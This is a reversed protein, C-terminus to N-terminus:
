EENVLVGIEWLSFRLQSIFTLRWQVSVLGLSWPPYMLVLIPSIDSSNRYFKFFVNYFGWPPFLPWFRGPSFFGEWFALGMLHMDLLHAPSSLSTTNRTNKARMETWCLWHTRWQAGHSLSCQDERPPPTGQQQSGAHTICATLLFERCGGYCLVNGAPNSMSWQSRNKKMHVWKCAM